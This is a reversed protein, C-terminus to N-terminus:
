KNISIKEDEHSALRKFAGGDLWSASYYKPILAHTLCHLHTNSKAWRSVLIENIADFFQSQGSSINLGEQEFIIAKVNEIMTNWMDYTLHLLPGDKDAARLMDIIPKTFKLFYDIKDWWNDDIILLKVDNVKKDLNNGHSRFTKWRADM